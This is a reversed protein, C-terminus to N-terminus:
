YIYIYIYEYYYRNQKYININFMLFNKRRSSNVLIEVYIYYSGKFTILNM